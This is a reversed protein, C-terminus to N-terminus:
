KVRKTHCLYEYGGAQLEVAPTNEDPPQIEFTEDGEKIRDGKRPEVERENIVVSAAPLIFDRMTIKIEIGYEAGIANYVRDNRRATFTDTKFSERCFTVDVGFLGNMQPTVRNHFRQEFLSAM